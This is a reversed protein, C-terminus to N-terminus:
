REDPLKNKFHEIITDTKSKYYDKFEEHGETEQKWNLFLVNRLRQSQTKPKDYLEVDLNDLEKIEENTLQNEAKFVLYGFTDIMSHIKMVDEPSKEGTEFRITLSKDKRPNYGVLQGSTHLKM